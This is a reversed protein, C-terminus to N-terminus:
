VSHARPRRAPSRASARPSLAGLKAPLAGWLDNEILRKPGELGGKLSKESAVKLVLPGLLGAEWDGCCEPRELGVWVELGLAEWPRLAEWSACTRSASGCGAWLDCM